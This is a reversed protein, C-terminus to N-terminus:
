YGGMARPLMRKLVNDRRIFQHYLAAGVHMLILIILLYGVWRHITFLLTALAENKSVIAPLNFLGFFPTQAGHGRRARRRAAAQVSHIPERYRVYHRFRERADPGFARLNGHEGGHRRRRSDDRRQSGRREHLVSNRPSSAAGPEAAVSRQIESPHSPQFESTREQDRESWANRLRRARKGRACGFSAFASSHSADLFGSRM